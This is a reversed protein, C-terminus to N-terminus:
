RIERDFPLALVGMAPLVCALNLSGPFFQLGKIIFVYNRLCCKKVITYFIGPWRLANFKM